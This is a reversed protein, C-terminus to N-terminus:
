ESNVQILFLKVDSLQIRVQSRNIKVEMLHEIVENATANINKDEESTRAHSGMAPM